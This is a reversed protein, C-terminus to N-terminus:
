EPARQLIYRAKAKEKVWTAANEVSLEDWNINSVDMGFADAFLGLAQAINIDGIDIDINIGDGDGHKGLSRDYKSKLKKDSLVSYAESIRM